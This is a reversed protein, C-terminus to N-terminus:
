YSMEARIMPANANAGSPGFSSLPTNCNLSVAGAYGIGKM